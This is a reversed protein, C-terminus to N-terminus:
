NEAPYGDGTSGSVAGKQRLHSTVAATCRVAPPRLVSNFPFGDNVCQYSVCISFNFKVKKLYRNM